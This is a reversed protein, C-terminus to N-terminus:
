NGFELRSEFDGLNRTESPYEYYWCEELVSCYKLRISFRGEMQPLIARTEENWPLFIMTVEEGAKMVRNNISNSSIIDYGLQNDPKIQELISLFSDVPTGDLTVEVSKILAPGIGNNRAILRFGESNYSQGIALYPWVTAKQQSKMINAEFISVVLALVSIVLAVITGLSQLAERNLNFNAKM